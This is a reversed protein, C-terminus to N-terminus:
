NHNPFLIHSHFRLFLTGEWNDGFHSQPLEHVQVCSIVSMKCRQSKYLSQRETTLRDNKEYKGMFVPTPQRM